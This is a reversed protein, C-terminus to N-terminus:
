NQNNSSKLILFNLTTLFILKFYVLLRNLALKLDSNRRIETIQKEEEIIM